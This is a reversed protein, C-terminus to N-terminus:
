LDAGCHAYTKGLPTHFGLAQYMGEDCPACTVSLSPIGQESCWRQAAQVIRRAVGQGRFAPDVYFDDFIGIMGCAFTSFCKVVSGMGVIHEGDRAVFFLIQEEEIARILARERKEDLPEEGIELLFSNEVRVLEREEGASLLRISVSHVEHEM